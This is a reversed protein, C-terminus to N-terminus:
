GDLSAAMEDLKAALARAMKATIEVPDHHTRDSAAIHISEQEIWIRVDGNMLEFPQVENSTQHDNMDIVLPLSM